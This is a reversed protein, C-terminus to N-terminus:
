IYRRSPNNMERLKQRINGVYKNLKLVQMFEGIKDELVGTQDKNSDLQYKSQMLNNNKLRM